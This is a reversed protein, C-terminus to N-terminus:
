QPSLDRGYYLVRHRALFLAGTWFSITLVAASPTFGKLFGQNGSERRRFESQRGSQCELPDGSWVRVLGAPSCQHGQVLILVKGCARRGMEGQVPLLPPPHEESAQRGQEPPETLAPLM